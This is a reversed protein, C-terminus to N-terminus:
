LEQALLYLQHRLPLIGTSFVRLIRKQLNQIIMKKQGWLGGERLGEEGTGGGGGRVWGEFLVSDIQTGPGGSPL